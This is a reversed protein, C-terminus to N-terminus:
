GNYRIVKGNRKRKIVIFIACTAVTLLTISSGLFFIRQPWFEIIFELTYSGDSNKVCLQSQQCIAPFDVFWANSYGNAIFHDKEPVQQPSLKKSGELWTDFISGNDLNDNQITNELRKSIFRLTNNASVETIIGQEIFDLIEMTSAQYRYQTAEQKLSSLYNSMDMSETKQPKVLYARWEDHFVENFVLFFSDKVNHAKLRYKTTDVKKFELVVTQNNYTNDVLKQLQTTNNKNQDEFFIATRNTIDIASLIKPLQNVPQDSFFTQEPTYFHQMFNTKAYLTLMNNDIYKTFQNQEVLNNMHELFPTHDPKLINKRVIVYNVNTPYLTHNVDKALNDLLTRTYKGVYGANRDTLILPGPIPSYAAVIDWIGNCGGNFRPDDNFDIIGGPFYLSKQDLKERLILKELDYYEKPFTKTRLRLDCGRGPQWNTTENNWWPLTSWIWIVFFITLSLYYVKLPIKPKLRLFTHLTMGGLFAYAFTSLVSFRLFDRLVNSFPIYLLVERKMNLLFMFFPVLAIIWFSVILKKEKAIFLSGAALIPLVFSLFTLSYEATASEYQANFLSGFLRLFKLPRLHGLNGLSVSSNVIDSGSISKDPVMLMGIVWYSNFLVFVVGIVLLTQIYSFLSKRDSVLYFSLCTFIIGIWLFSQSQIMAIGFLIGAILAYSINFSRVSHIFLLTILPILGMIFLVFVWGMLAYNFFLPSTLYLLGSFLAVIARLGLYRSFLFMTFGAFTFFIILILQTYIEGLGILALFKVFYVFVITTFITQRAGFVVGQDGWALLASQFNKDIQTDTIPMGWDAGTIGGEQFLIGRFFIVSIVLYFIIVLIYQYTKM